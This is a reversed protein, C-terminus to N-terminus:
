PKVYVKAGGETVYYKGGRKGTEMAGPLKKATAFKALAKVDQKPSAAQAAPKRLRELAVDESAKQAKGSLEDARAMSTRVGGMTPGESAASANAFHANRHLDSADRHANAEAGRGDKEAKLLGGMEMLKNRHHEALRKHEEARTKARARQEPTVEQAKAKEKAPPPSSSAKLTKEFWAASNKDGAVMEGADTKAFKAAFDAIKDAAVEIVMEGTEYNEVDGDHDRTEELMRSSVVRGGSEEVNMAYHDLDGDHQVEGLRFTM